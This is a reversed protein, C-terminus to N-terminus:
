VGAGVDGEWLGAHRPRSMRDYWDICGLAIEVAGPEALFELEALIAVGDLWRALEEANTAEAVSGTAPEPSSLVLGAVRLGRSRAAEVAALTQALTGLGRRAVIVLPYDLAVALDAVTTAEAVPTLLGGVGEVVLAEAHEQWWRLATRLSREVEDRELPRGLRRAAVSPALPEEFVLPAVHALTADAAEAAAMLAEADDCRWSGGVPEAGSALPKLVGVRRGSARVSRAVAAAVRTKGVGTDTGVVFLGPLAM